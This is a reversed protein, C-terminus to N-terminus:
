YSICYTLVHNQIQDHHIQYLKDFFGTKIQGQLVNHEPTPRIALNEKFILQKRSYLKYLTEKASWFLCTEQENEATYRKEAESLFKDAVRLAKQTILEIDIGVEYKESIIVAALQPSHTISIHLSADPFYPKGHENRQLILQEATFNKLLEYVLVRSAIWERERKPHLHKLKEVNIYSPLLQQLAETPEDIQWIGLSSFPDLQVSHLLPM